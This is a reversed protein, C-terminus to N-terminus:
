TVVGWRTVHVAPNDAWRTGPERHISDWAASWLSVLDPYVCGDIASVPCRGLNPDDHPRDVVGEALIGAATIDQVHEVSTEVCRLRTRCAETPMYRSALRDVKWRWRLNETGDSRRGGPPTVLLDDATYAALHPWGPHRYLGECVIIEDGPLAKRGIAARMKAPDAPLIRRTETKEGRMIARVLPDSFPYRVARTM